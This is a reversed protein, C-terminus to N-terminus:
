PFCVNFIKKQRGPGGAGVVSAVPRVDAPQPRVRVPDSSLHSKHLLNEFKCILFWQLVRAM